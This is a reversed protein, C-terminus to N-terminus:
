VIKGPLKRIISEAEAMISDIIEQCSKIERILGSSQGAMLSGGDLDGDCVAKRLSGEGLKEL